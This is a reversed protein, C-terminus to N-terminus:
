AQNGTIVAEISAIDQTSLASATLLLIRESVPILWVNVKQDKVSVTMRGIGSQDITPSGTLAGTQADGITGAISNLVAISITGPGMDTLNIITQGTIRVAISGSGTQEITQWNKPILYKFGGITRFTMQKRDFAKVQPAPSTTASMTPVPTAMTSSSTKPVNRPPPTSTTKATVKSTKENDTLTNLSLAATIILM